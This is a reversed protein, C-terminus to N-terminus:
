QIVKWQKFKLIRTVALPLRLMTVFRVLAKYIPHKIEQTMRILKVSIKGNHSREEGKVPSALSDPTPKEIRLHQFASPFQIRVTDFFINRRWRQPLLNPHPPFIM